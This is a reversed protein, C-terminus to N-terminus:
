QKNGGQRKSQSGRFGFGEETIYSQYRAKGNNLFVGKGSPNEKELVEAYVLGTGFAAKISYVRYLSLAIKNKRAEDQLEKM